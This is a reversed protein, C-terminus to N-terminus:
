GTELTRGYSRGMKGSSPAAPWGPRAVRDGSEAVPETPPHFFELTVLLGIALM